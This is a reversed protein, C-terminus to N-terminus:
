CCCLRAAGQSHPMLSGKVGDLSCIEHSVFWFDKQCALVLLWWAGMAKEMRWRSKM